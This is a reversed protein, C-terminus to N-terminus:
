CSKVMQLQSIRKSFGSALFEAKVSESLPCNNLFLGTGTGFRFALAALADSLNTGDALELEAVEVGRESLQYKLVFSKNEGLSFRSGTKQPNFKALNQWPTKLPDDSLKYPEEQWEDPIADLKGELFFLENIVEFGYRLYFKLARENETIVELKFKTGAAERVMEDMLLVSAGEGRFDPIVGLGGCWSFGDMRGFASFGVPRDGAFAVSSLNPDLSFEEM